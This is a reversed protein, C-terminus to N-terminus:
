LWKKYQKKVESHPTAGGKKLDSLGEEITNKAEDSISDFWDVEKQEKKPNKLLEVSTEDELIIIWNILDQESKM